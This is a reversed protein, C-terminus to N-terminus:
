VISLTASVSCPSFSVGPLNRSLNRSVRQLNVQLLPDWFHLPPIIKFSLNRVWDVGSIQWSNYFCANTDFWDKFFQQLQSLHYIVTSFILLFIFAQSFHKSPGLHFPIPKNNSHFPPPMELPIARLSRLWGRNWTWDAFSWVPSYVARWCTPGLPWVRLAIPVSPEKPPGWM